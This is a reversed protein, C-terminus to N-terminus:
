ETKTSVTKLIPTWRVLEDQFVAAAKDFEAQGEGTYPGKYVPAGDADEPVDLYGLIYNPTGFYEMAALLLIFAVLGGTYTGYMRGLQKYFADAADTTQTTAM